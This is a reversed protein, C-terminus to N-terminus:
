DTDNYIFRTMTKTAEIGETIVKRYLINQEIGNTDLGGELRNDEEAIEKLASVSWDELRRLINRLTTAQSPAESLQDM